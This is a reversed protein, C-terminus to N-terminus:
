FVHEGSHSVPTAVVEGQHEAKDNFLSICRASRSMRYKYKPTGPKIRIRFVPLHCCRYMVNRM